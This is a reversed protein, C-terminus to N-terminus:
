HVAPQLQDGRGDKALLADVAEDGIPASHHAPRSCRGCSTPAGSCRSCPRPNLRLRRHASQRAVATGRAATAGVRRARRGAGCRRRSRSRRGVDWRYWLLNMDAGVDLLMTIITLGRSIAHHLCRHANVDVGRDLFWALGAADEFDLKHNVM